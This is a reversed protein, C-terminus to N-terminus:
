NILKAVREWRVSGYRSGANWSWYIIFAKGEIDELAVPGFYRSDKSNMRNDGLVFYQNDQLTVPGYNGHHLESINPDTSVIVQELDSFVGNIYAQFNKIEITEGPLGIIRKIFHENANNGQVLEEFGPRVDFVVVDNRQPKRSPTLGVFFKPLNAGYFFKDVLIYDGVKLTPLMSESPIKFSQFVFIRFLVVLAITLALLM